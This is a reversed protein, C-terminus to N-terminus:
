GCVLIAASLDFKQRPLHCQDVGVDRRAAIRQSHHAGFLLKAAAADIERALLGAGIDLRGALDFAQVPRQAALILKAVLAVLDCQQFPLDSKDASRDGLAGLFQCGKAGDLLQALTPDIRCARFPLGGDPIGPADVFEIALKGNALRQFILLVLDGKKCRCIPSIPWLAESRETMM